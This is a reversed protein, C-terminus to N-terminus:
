FSGQQCAQKFPASTSCPKRVHTIGDANWGLAALDLSTDLKSSFLLLAILPLNMRDQYPSVCNRTDNPMDVPCLVDCVGLCGGPEINRNCIASM